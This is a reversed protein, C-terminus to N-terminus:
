ILESNFICKYAGLGWVSNVWNANPVAYLCQLYYMLKKLISSGFANIVYFLIFIYKVYLQIITLM